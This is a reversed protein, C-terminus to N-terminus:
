STPCSKNAKSPYILPKKFGPRPCRLNSQADWFMDALRMVRVELCWMLSWRSRKREGRRTFALHHRWLLLALFLQKNGRIGIPLLRPPDKFIHMWSTEEVSDTVALAVPSPLFPLCPSPHGDASQCTIHFTSLVLFRAHGRLCSRGWRGPGSLLFTLFLNTIANKPQWSCLCGPGDVCRQIWLFGLSRCLYLLLQYPPPKLWCPAPFPPSIWERIGQKVKWM